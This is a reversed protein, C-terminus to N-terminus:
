ENATTPKVATVGIKYFCQTATADKAPVTLSLTTETAQAWEVVTYEAADVTESKLVTYYIGPTATISVTSDGDLVGNLTLALADNAEGTLTEEAKQTLTWTATWGATDSGTATAEFLKAYDTKQDATIGDFPDKIGANNLATTAEAETTGSVTDGPAVPEVKAEEAYKVYITTTQTITTEGFVFPTQCTEDSYWGAVTYGTVAPATQEAVTGDKEVTVATIGAWETGEPLGVQAFSVTYSTPASWQTFSPADTMSVIQLDDIAGTGEFGVSTLAKPNLSDAGMGDILSPFIMQKSYYDAGQATMDSTGPADETFLAAYDVESASVAEGDVYVVFGLTGATNDDTYFKITKVSVRAWQDASVNANLAITAPVIKSESDTVVTGAEGIKGCTVMLTPTSNEVDENASQLWLVFKDGDNVTPAEDTATFKVLTDVVYSNNADVTVAGATEAFNRRLVAGSDTELNLYKSGPGGFAATNAAPTGYTYAAGDDYTKVTIGSTDTPANWMGDELSYTEAESAGDEFGQTTKTYTVTESAWAGATLAAAMSAILLKKM